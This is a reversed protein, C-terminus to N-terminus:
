QANVANKRRKLFRALFGIHRGVTPFFGYYHSMIRFREMLSKRHNKTTMGESLYRILPKEGVYANQESVQLCRICWEYDASFRYATDYLPVLDRRAGFAQHCVLMGDKFSDATLNEPATLHRPGLVKNERDVLVTQGYIVGPSSDTKRAMRYLSESDYFMDGANLFILYRGEAVGIAKNMADYIGHDPSSIIRTRPTKSRGAINLTEDSSCGDMIIHEYDSFKQESVSKMTSELTDQANYTVTIISFLPSSATTTMPNFSLSNLRVNTFIRTRQFTRDVFNRFFYLIRQNAGSKKHLKTSSVAVCTTLM